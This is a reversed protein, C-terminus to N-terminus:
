QQKKHNRKYTQMLHVPTAYGDQYKREAASNNVALDDYGYKKCAKVLAARLNM